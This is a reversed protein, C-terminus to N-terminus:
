KRIILAKVTYQLPIIRRLNPLKTPDADYTKRSQRSAARGCQRPGVGFTGGRASGEVARKTTKAATKTDEIRPLEM